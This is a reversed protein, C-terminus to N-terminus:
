VPTEHDGPAAERSRRSRIRATLRWLPYLQRTIPRSCGYLWDICRVCVADAPHSRFGVM